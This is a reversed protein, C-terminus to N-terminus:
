PRPADEGLMGAVWALADAPEVGLERVRDVYARAAEQGHVSAPDGQATVVTGNRGRTEVFGQEELERYARAITNTALGLEAAYARVTPLRHGAPLTGDLIRDRLATRLQEYPPVASRPDTQFGNVTVGLRLSVGSRSPDQRDPYLDTVHFSGM